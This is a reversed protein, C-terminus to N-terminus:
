FANGDQFNKQKGSITKEWFRFQEDVFVSNLYPANDILLRYNLYAKWDEIPTTKMLSELQTFFGPQGVIFTDINKVGTKSFFDSWNISPTLTNLKALSYKNYNA